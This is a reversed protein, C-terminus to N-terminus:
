EQISRLYSTIARAGQSDFKFAPMDPHGALILGDQLLEQLQSLDYTRSIKRFPPAARHPSNGTKGIADCMACHEEVLALGAGSQANSQTAGFCIAIVAVLIEGRLRTQGSSAFKSGVRRQLSHISATM